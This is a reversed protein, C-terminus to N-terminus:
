DGTIISRFKGKEYVYSIGAKEFTVAEVADNAFIFNKDTHYDYGTDGKKWGILYDGGGDADIVQLKYGSAKKMLAILHLKSHSAGGNYLNTGHQIQLAYDLQGNGDFDGAVLNLEADSKQLFHRVDASAESFKWGPYNGDLVARAAPPLKPTPIKEATFVNTILVFAFLLSFINKM